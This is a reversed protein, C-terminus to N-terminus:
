EEGDWVVVRNRGAEKAKYLAMDAQHILQELNMTNANFDAVGISATVSLEGHNKTPVKNERLCKLVREGVIMPDKAQYFLMVFEEGGYRAYIDGTRLAKSFVSAVTKLVDDGVDHGYNDNFKKFFDIDFIAISIGNDIGQRKIRSFERQALSLFHQRNYLNTLGDMIAMRHVKEFLMANQIATSAQGVIISVLMKVKQDLDFKSHTEIIIIGLTKDNYCIPAGIWATNDNIHIFRGLLIKGEQKSIKSMISKNALENILNRQELQDFHYSLDEISCINDFKYMSMLKFRDYNSLLIIGKDYSVFNIMGNILKSSVESLDLTSTLDQNLTM